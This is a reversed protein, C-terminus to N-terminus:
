QYLGKVKPSSRLDGRFTKCQQYRETLGFTRPNIPPAEDIEHADLVM